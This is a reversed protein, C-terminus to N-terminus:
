VRYLRIFESKVIDLLYYLQFSETLLFAVAAYAIEIILTEETIGSALIYSIFFFSSSYVLLTFVILCGCVKLYPNVCNLSM